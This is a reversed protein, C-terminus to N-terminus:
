ADSNLDLSKGNKPAQINACSSENTTAEGVYLEPITSYGATCHRRVYNKQM